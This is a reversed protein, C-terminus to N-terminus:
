EGNQEREARLMGIFDDWYMQMKWGDVLKVAGPPIGWFMVMTDRRNEKFILLPEKKAKEAECIIKLWYKNLEGRSFRAHHKIECMFPGAVVDGSDDAVNSCGSGISRHSDPFFERLERMITTEARNGKAKQGGARM